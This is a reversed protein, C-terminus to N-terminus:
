KRGGRKQSWDVVMPCAVFVTSYTGALVGVLMTFAFDNIVPGGFLLLAVIVLLVTLSTLLTRSLTENISTNVVEAYGAKGSKKLNERVRDFTVITDNVSYGVITLLAALVPISIERAALIVAGLCIIADHFVALITACSYRFQFRYALYGLISVLSFFIALLSKKRLEKGVVPGVSEVRVLEHPNGAFREAMVQEIQEQSIEGARIVMERENGFQQIAATELGIGALAARVDRVEVPGQFRYEQLVGGTFDIGLRDQIRLFILLFSGCVLIASLLYFPKRIKLFDIHPTHKLFALMPLKKPHRLATMLDFIVHTVFIGTFFSGVIGIALTLAFGRVPGTGLRFLILATILTTLNTDLIASFARRYGASIAAPVAKGLHLEERIRELILVNTDVAMGIVLIIGAIGPVTLTAKFYALCAGIIAINLVLAFDAILGAGLYYIAMFAIVLIGAIITALIGQEVSDRGLTPGVTREEEIQIPAPLAGARLAIALDGAEKLAFSGSIQGEGGIIPERIVPASQVVDDLVIALRRNVNESTIDGFIRAGKSDFTIAVVPENWDTSYQVIADTLNKGSLLTKDELRIEGGEKQKYFKTGEPLTAEGEEVPVVPEESVLKFELLATRGILDLARKRDTVGPLQVVIQSAGQRQISPESVGFQDIRNRIIELARETADERQEKPLTETRVRLILHMGGQLDLGLRLKGMQPGSGDPDFPPYAVLLAVAVVILVVALRWQLNRTLM